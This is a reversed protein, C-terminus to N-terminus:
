HGGRQRVARQASRIWRDSEGSLLWIGAGIPLWLLLMGWPSLTEIRVQAAIPALWNVIVLVTDLVIGPIWALMGAVGPLIVALLAFPYTVWFALTIVPAVLINALISVPSWTGFAMLAIPMTVLSAVMPGLAIDIASKGAGGSLHHPLALCLAVSASASLWFGISHVVFPQVLAMGGLTLALVTIPDPRRGVHRGVITLTAVIAARLAPPELGALLAYSWIVVALGIHFVWRGSATKPQWWLSLFGLIITVNQGSVATIHSTGTARFNDAAEDSLGSDDGTVIGTGLAGTDAPLLAAVGHSLTQNTAALWEFGTPGSEVIRVSTARASASANHSQVFDRYGQPLESLSQIQWDVRLVQGRAVPPNQDPVYLLVMESAPICQAGICLEAVRFTVRDSEGSPRPFSEIKGIAATSAALEDSTIFADPADARVAGCSAVFVCAVFLSWRKEQEILLVLAVISACIPIAYWGLWVGALASLGIVIGNTM